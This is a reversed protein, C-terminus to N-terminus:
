GTTAWVGKGAVKTGQNLDFEVQWEPSGPTHKTRMQKVMVDRPLTPNARHLEANIDGICRGADQATATPNDFLGKERLTREIAECAQATAIQTEDNGFEM